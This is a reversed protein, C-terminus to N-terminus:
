VRSLKGMYHDQFSTKSSSKLGSFHVPREIFWDEGILELQMISCKGSLSNFVGWGVEHDVFQLLNRQIAQHCVREKTVVWQYKIACTGFEKHGKSSKWKSFFRCNGYTVNNNNFFPGFDENPCKWQPQTLPALDSEQLLHMGPSFESYLYKQRLFFCSVWPLGWGVSVKQSILKWRNSKQTVSTLFWTMGPLFESLDNLFSLPPPFYFCLMICSANHIKPAECHLWLIHKATIFYCYYLQSFFLFCFLLFWANCLVITSQSIFIKSLTKIHNISWPHEHTGNWASSAFLREGFHAKKGHSFSPKACCWLLSVFNFYVCLCFM